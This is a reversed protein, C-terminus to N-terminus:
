VIELTDMSGDIVSFGLGVDREVKKEEVVLVFVCEVIIGKKM